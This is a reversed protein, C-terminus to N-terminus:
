VTYPGADGQIKYNQIHIDFSILFVDGTYTNGSNRRLMGIICHSRSDPDFGSPTATPFNILMHTMGVTGAPLTATQQFANNVGPVAETSFIQGIDRIEWVVDFTATQGVPITTRPVVHLHVRVGTNPKWTHPMQTEFQLWSNRNEAWYPRTIAVGAVSIMTGYQLVGSANSLNPTLLLDNWVPPDMLIEQISVSPVSGGLTTRTFFGVPNTSPYKTVSVQQFYAADTAYITLPSNVSASGTAANYTIVTWAGDATLNGRCLVDITTGAPVTSVGGVGNFNKLTLTSSNGNILTFRFGVRPITTADPLRVEYTTGLVFDQIEEDGVVLQKVGPITCDTVNYGVAAHHAFINSSADRLVLTSAVADTSAAVALRDLAVSGAPITTAIATAGSGTVAGSLTITQNSALFDVGPVAASVNGAGDAKLIGSITGAGGKDSGIVDADWTGVVITGLTTVSTSGTWTSLYGAIDVAVVKEWGSDGYILWDGINFATLPPLTLNGAASIIWFDGTAPGVPLVDVAASWTGRYNLGSIDLQSAPVKGDPGLTAIGSAIGSIDRVWATTAIRDSDDSNNQTVAEWGNPLKSTTASLNAATGTIDIGAPDPLDSSLLTPLLAHDLKSGGAPLDGAELVVDSSLAFGNITRVVPVSTTDVYDKSAAHDALVPPAVQLPSDFVKAGSFTQAGTTVVGSSILSANKITVINSLINYALPDAYSPLLGTRTDVYEKTAADYDEVPARVRSVTVRSVTKPVICDTAVGSPAIWSSM